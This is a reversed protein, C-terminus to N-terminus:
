GKGGLAAEVADLAKQTSHLSESLERQATVLESTTAGDVLDALARQADSNEVLVGRLLCLFDADGSCDATRRASAGFPRLLDDFYHMRVDDPMAALISPIFNAPLLNTDKSSDDLWRFVRDANVKMREFVDTTPPEFRIGTTAPGGIREHADVIAAVVTERSWGESKRWANIHALLLAILTTHSKDRM